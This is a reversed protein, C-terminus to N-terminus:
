DCEHDKGGRKYAVFTCNKCYGSDRPQLEFDADYGYGNDELARRYLWYCHECYYRYPRKGRAELESVSPCNIIEEHYVGDEDIYTGGVVHERSCTGGTGYFYEYYGELGKDRVADSLELNISALRDWLEIVAAKGHRKDLFEFTASYNVIFDQVTM